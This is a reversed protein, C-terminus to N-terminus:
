RALERLRDALILYLQRDGQWFWWWPDVVDSPATEIAAAIREAAAREGQAALLTMLAVSASQAHPWVDVAQRFAAAAKELDGLARHAQGRVFYAIYLVQRNLDQQFGASEAPAFLPPLTETLTLAVDFRKLRFQLWAERVQAEAATEPFRRAAQYRAVVSEHLAAEVEAAAGTRVGPGLVPSSQDAIVADALIVRPEEPCQAIAQSIFPRAAGGYGSTQFLMLGAWYWACQFADRSPAAGNGRQQVLLAVAEEVSPADDKNLAVSTVDLAFMASRRPAGPWLEGADRLTRIWRPLDPTQELRDRVAAYEGRAYAGPISDPPVEAARRVPPRPTAATESSERGAAGPAVRSPRGLWSRARVSAAEDSVKVILRQASGDRESEPMAIALRYFASTESLLRSVAPDASARTVIIEAGGTSAMLPALWNLLVNDDQAPTPAADTPKRPITLDLFSRGLFLTYIAANSASAQRVLDQFADSTELPAAAADGTRSGATFFVVVERQPGAAPGALVDGLADLTRTFVGAATADPEITIKELAERVVARDATAEVHPGSPYTFIGVRDSRSLRDVLAQTAASVAISEDAKFSAADIAIIFVRGESPEIFSSANVASDGGAPAETGIFRASVVPRPRGGVSVEFQGPTLGSVPRGGRDVVQVDIAVLDGPATSEQALVPACLLSALVACARTM